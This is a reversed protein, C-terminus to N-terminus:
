DEWPFRDRSLQEMIERKSLGAKRSSYSDSQTKGEQDAVNQPVDQKVEETQPSPTESKVQQVSKSNTTNAM